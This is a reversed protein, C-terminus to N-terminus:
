KSADDIAKKDDEAKKLIKKEMDKAKQMKDKYGKLVHDKDTAKTAEPQKKFAQDPTDSCAMLTLIMILILIKM